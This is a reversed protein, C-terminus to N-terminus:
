SKFGTAVIRNGIHKTLIFDGKNEGRRQASVARDILVDVLVTVAYFCHGQPYIIGLFAPFLGSGTPCDADEFRFCPLVRIAFDHETGNFGIAIRNMDKHLSFIVGAEKQGAVLRPGEFCLNLGNAEFVHIM